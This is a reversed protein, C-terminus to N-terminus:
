LGALPWRMSVVVGVIIHDNVPHTYHSCSGEYDEACVFQASIFTARPTCTQIFSLRCERLDPFV